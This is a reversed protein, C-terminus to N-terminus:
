NVWNPAPAAAYELTAALGTGEIYVVYAIGQRDVFYTCAVKVNTNDTLGTDALGNRM